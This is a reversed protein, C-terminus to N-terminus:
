ETKGNIFPESITKNFFHTVPGLGFACALTGLGLLGGTMFTALACFSDTIIRAWFYPLKKARDTMIISLSDYPSVGVDATQYISIGFCTVIVGILMVPFQAIFTTPENFVKTLLNVFFNVIYGLCFMNVITGLGIYRRGFTM